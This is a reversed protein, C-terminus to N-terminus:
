SSCLRLDRYREPITVCAGRPWYRSVEAWHVGQSRTIPSRALLSPSCLDPATGLASSCGLSNRHLVGGMCSQSGRPLM